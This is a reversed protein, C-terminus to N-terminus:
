HARFLHTLATVPHRLNVVLPTILAGGGDSVAGDRERSRARVGAGSAARGARAGTDPARARARRLTGAGGGQSARAGRAGGQVGADGAGGGGGGGSLQGRAPPQRGGPRVRRRGG